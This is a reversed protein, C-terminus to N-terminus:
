LDSPAGAKGTIHLHSSLQLPDWSLSPHLSANGMPLRTLAVPLAGLSLSM